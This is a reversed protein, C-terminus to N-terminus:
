VHEFGEAGNTYDVQDFSKTLRRQPMSGQKPMFVGQWGNVISEDLCANPDAGQQRFGDLKSILRSLAVQTVPKKITKRYEIFDQVTQVSLWEPLVSLDLGKNKTNNDKTITDQRKHTGTEPSILGQKPVIADRPLSKRTGTEPSKEGDRPLSKQNSKSCNESASKSPKQDDNLWDSVVNNVGISRGVRYLINREVLNKIVESVHNAAIGTLETIQDRCVWDCAKNFGLTKHIIAFMVKSERKNLDTKCLQLVLDNAIRTFGNEVDAVRKERIAGSDQSVPFQYVVAANTM